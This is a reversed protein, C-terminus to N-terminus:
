ETIDYVVFVAAANRYFSKIISRKKQELTEKTNIKQVLEKDFTFYIYDATKSINLGEVNTKQHDICQYASNNKQIGFANLMNEALNPPTKM